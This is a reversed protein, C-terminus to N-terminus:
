FLTFSYPTDTIFKTDMLDWDMDLEHLRQEVYDHVEAKPASEYIGAVFFSRVSAGEHSRSRAGFVKNADLLMNEICRKWDADQKLELFIM